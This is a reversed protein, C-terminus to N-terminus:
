KQRTRRSKVALEGAGALDHRVVSEHPQEEIDLGELQAVLGSDDAGAGVVDEVDLWCERLALGVLDSASRLESQCVVGPDLLDQVRLLIYELDNERKWRVHESKARKPPAKTASPWEVQELLKYLIFHLWIVNTIPHYQQWSRESHPEPPMSFDAYPNDLFLAGRMYRYIDYQYEESSDGEFLGTDRRSTM